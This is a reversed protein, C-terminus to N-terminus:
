SISCVDDSAANEGATRRTRDRKLREERRLRVREIVDSRQRSANYKQGRGVGYLAKEKKEQRRFYAQHRNGELDLWNTEQVFAEKQIADVGYHWAKWEAENHTKMGPPPKATYLPQQARAKKAADAWRASSSDVKRSGLTRDYIRRQEADGLVSYAESADKFEDESGKGGKNVDPHVALAIQRYAAKIESNTATRAVRLIAYYDRM